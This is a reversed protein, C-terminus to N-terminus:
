KVILTRDACWSKTLDIQLPGTEMPLDTAAEYAGPRVDNIVFRGQSDSVASFTKEGRLYVRAGAVYKSTSREFVQGSFHAPLAKGAAWTRLVLLEGDTQSALKSRQCFSTYWQEDAPSRYAEVLWVEGAHMDLVQMPEGNLFHDSTLRVAFDGLEVGSFAELVQLRVVPYRRPPETVRDGARRRAQPAVGSSPDGPALPPLVLPPAPVIEKVIGLFIAANPNSRNTLAECFPRSPACSACAFGSDVFAGFLFLLVKSRM